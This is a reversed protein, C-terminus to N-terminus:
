KRNRVLCDTSLRTARSECRGMNSYMGLWENKVGMKGRKRLFFDGVKTGMEADLKKWAKEMNGIFFFGLQYFCRVRQGEVSGWKWFFSNNSLFFIM